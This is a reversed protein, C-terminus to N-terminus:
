GTTGTSKCQRRYGDSQPGDKWTLFSPNSKGLLSTELHITFVSASFVKYVTLCTHDYPRPRSSSESTMCLYWESQCSISPSLHAAMACITCYVYFDQQPENANTTTIVLTNEDLPFSAQNSFWRYTHPAPFLSTEHNM